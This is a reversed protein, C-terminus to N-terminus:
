SCEALIQSVSAHNMPRPSQADTLTHSNQLLTEEKVLGQLIRIDGKGM